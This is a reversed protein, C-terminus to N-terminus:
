PCKFVRKLYEAPHTHRKSCNCRPCLLQMNGDENRGGLALPMYHDLHRESQSIDTWCYPCRAGQESLLLEVLGASLKGRGAKRARYNHNRIKCRDPNNKQWLLSNARDRERNKESWARSAIAARGPNAERWAITKLRAHERNKIRWAENEAKAREPNEARFKASRDRNRQAREEPTLNVRPAVPNAARKRARADAAYLRHWERREEPSQKV